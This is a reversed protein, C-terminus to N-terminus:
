HASCSVPNSSVSPNSCVGGSPIAVVYRTAFSLREGRIPAYNIAFWIPPLCSTPCGTIVFYMSHLNLIKDAFYPDRKKNYFSM